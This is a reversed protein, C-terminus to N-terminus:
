APQAENHVVGLLVGEREPTSVILCAAERSTMRELTEALDAAARITAPGPEMIDEVSRTDDPSIRKRRLRGQVVRSDNVVVCVPSGSTALRAAIDAIRDQSTCTPVSRDMVSAVRPLHPRVGETPLGAALWDSKGVVYDYVPSYGFAELRWAARPTM